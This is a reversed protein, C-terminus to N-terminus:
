FVIKAALQLVRAPGASTVQGYNTLGLTTAVGSFNTHNFTNFSEARLQMNLEQRIQINKFLSLDWDGYGPGLISGNSANGPRYEGTPVQAFAKTNFWQALTHPASHNPNSVYDPRATGNESSGTALLGVGGPDVNITHPTLSLGSGYYVIGTAEWGGLLHGTLGQQARFFPLMYVFNANFIHTRNFASPGYEAAPDYINQPATANSLARSYTYNVTLVSGGTLRRTASVQLGNYNSSFAQLQADIPGYGLYPRIQNLPQTTGPTVANGPIIGKEAYLGPPPANIDETVALHVAHNGFYGFDLITNPGIQHQLDVNFSEIYPNRPNVQIAHLITPSSSLVAVGNGPSDFSTNQIVTNVLNPPNLTSMQQADVNPVQLYYIGFGGRVATHGDGYPDYAFGFRPAFTLKPQQTVKEGYPSTKGGIILGNSQDFSPNPTGGGKCPAKTCILGSSDITPANAAIYSGPVFNVIPLFQFGQLHGATPQAIYSYRVGMNITLRPTIRFDDQAYAEYLNTHPLSATDLSTQQFNTVKGQLFNAFAQDFQTESSSPALKGPAFSFSGNNGDGANNGAQQYELNIGFNLVHRGLTDTDNVFVQTVPDRNDYPSIAAYSSGNIHLDPVHGLTSVYPVKPNINPSNASLLLGTLQATVWNQMHAFGGDVVNNPNIVYTAHGLFITAGDTVTSTGVGPIGQNQRLGNPVVLHFPDDLYRFFVNLKENFQHDIRIFTQTENNTGPESTILGQPDSPNNPLPTKNIIDTLYAQATPDFQSITTATKACTGNTNYGVCVPANFHGQRQTATPINTLTEQSNTLSRLYEQGFYFFTKANSRNMFHPIWVPGGIDYGYDNYRLGPRPINGRNNFYGNANLIQSRFFEFASGHFATSGSKTNISVFASGSGGYQAGYNSRQLNMEQIFDIGPYAAIQSGGASRRQMDEGDVFYGNQASGIGDVSLQASNVTGKSAIAGRDQPGPIPGSIGPQITLLQIFNRSSLSLQTMKKNTVLTGAAASDLQPALTSSTVEVTQSISGPLLVVPVSTTLGVHVVETQMTTKFGPADVIVSYNGIALLPATFEGQANAHVSRVVLNQDANKVTVTANPIVAGSSDKVVGDIEGTLNQGFLATSHLFCLALAILLGGILVRRLPRFSGHTTSLLDISGNEAFDLTKM